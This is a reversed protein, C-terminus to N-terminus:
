LIHQAEKGPSKDQVWGAWLSPNANLWDCASKWMGNGSAVLLLLDAMNSDSLRLQDALGYVRDAADELAPSAVTLLTSRAQASAPSSRM